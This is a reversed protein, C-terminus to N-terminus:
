AQTVQLPKWNVLYFYILRKDMVDGGVLIIRRDDVGDNHQRFTDPEGHNGLANFGILLKVKQLLVATVLVLAKEQGSGLRRLLEKSQMSRRNSLPRQLQVRSCTRM